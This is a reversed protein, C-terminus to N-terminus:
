VTPRVEFTKRPPELGEETVGVHTVVAARPGHRCADLMADVTEDAGSFLAEVAGDRRNRVWGALGRRTAQEEVWARYGVGQVRGSIIARVTRTMAAERDIASCSSRVAFRADSRGDM